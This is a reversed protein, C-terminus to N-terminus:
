RVVLHYRDRGARKAEYMADDAATVLADAAAPLAGSVVVGVSVTVPV